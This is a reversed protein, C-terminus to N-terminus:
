LGQQKATKQYFAKLKEACDYRKSKVSTEKMGLREAIERLSLEDVYFWEILKRCEEKLQHLSHRVANVVDMRELDNVVNTLDPNDITDPMTSRTRMRASGLETLWVRKCYEFVVTTIRTGAQLQYKGTEVNLLFNLMGKQFADEADMDTGNNTNVWNRFSPWVEAYLIQYARENRRSLADYLEQETSYIPLPRTAM